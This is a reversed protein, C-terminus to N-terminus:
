VYYIGRLGYKRVKNVKNQKYIMYNYLEKKVLMNYMVKDVM